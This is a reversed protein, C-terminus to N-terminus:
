SVSVDIILFSIPFAKLVLIENLLSAVLSQFWKFLDVHESITLIM